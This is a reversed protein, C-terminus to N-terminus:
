IFKKGAGFVSRAVPDNSNKEFFLDMESVSSMLCVDCMAWLYNVCEVSNVRAMCCCVPNTILETRTCVAINWLKGKFGVDGVRHSSIYGARVNGLRVNCHLHM